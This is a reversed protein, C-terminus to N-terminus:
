LELRLVGPICRRWESYLFQRAAKFVAMQKRRSLGRSSDQVGFTEKVDVLNDLRHSSSSCLTSDFPMRWLRNGRVLRTIPGM